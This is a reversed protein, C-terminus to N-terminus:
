TGGTLTTLEAESLATPFIRFDKLTSNILREIAIDRRGIKINTIQPVASTLGSFIYSVGDQAVIIETDSFSMALSHEGLTSLVLDSSILNTGQSTVSLRQSGSSNADLFAQNNFTGDTLLFPAIFDALNTLRYKCYVTFGGGNYEAGLTRVCDDAARTVQTGATPIYSSLVDYELQLGCLYFGRSEDGPVNAYARWSSQSTYSSASRITPSRNGWSTPIFTQSLRFWGNGADTVSVGYDSSTVISGTQLDIVPLRSGDNWHGGLMSVYRVGADKIYVSYTLLEDYPLNGWIKGAHQGTSDPNEIFKGVSVGTIGVMMEFLDYTMTRKNAYWKSPDDSWKKTNTSQEEILLGERNGVLRQEDTLVDQIKGTATRATAGSGRTFDLATNFPMQTLSNVPGEYVEYKNNAFDLSLTAQKLLDERRQKIGPDYQGLWASDIVGEADALPIKGAEPELTATGGTVVAVADDRYAKTEDRYGLTIDRADDALSKSNASDDASDSANTESTSAAEASAAALVKLDYVEAFTAFKVQEVEEGNDNIYLTYSTGSVAFFFEGSSTGTIGGAVSMFIQANALAAQDILSNFKGQIKRMARTFITATEIDGQSMEPFNDPVTFSTGIAYVAGSATPGAYAESLTISTNSNVAAVDYVVGTSAITFSDGATVNALWLTNTGTVTASGNTVSSLGTSYQSM